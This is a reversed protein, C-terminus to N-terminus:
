VRIGLHMFVKLRMGLAGLAMFRVFAWAEEM